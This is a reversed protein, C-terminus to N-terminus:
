EKLLPTVLFRLFQLPMIRGSSRYNQPTVFFVKALRRTYFIFNDSQSFKYPFIVQLNSLLSFLSSFIQYLISFAESPFGGKGQLCVVTNGPVHKLLSWSRTFNVLSGGKSQIWHPLKPLNQGRCQSHHPHSQKGTKQCEYMSTKKMHFVTSGRQNPM